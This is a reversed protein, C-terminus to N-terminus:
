DTPLLDGLRRQPKYPGDPNVDLDVIKVCTYHATGAHSPREGVLHMFKWDGGPPLGAPDSTGGAFQDTLAAEVGDKTWGSIIPCVERHLGSYTCVIQKRETM